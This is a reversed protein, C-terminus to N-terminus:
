LSYPLKNPIFLVQCQGIEDPSDFVRVVMKKNNVKSSKAIENLSATVPSSGIVGVVFEDGINGSEWDIYLTFNYIFVAKLDAERDKSQALGFVSICTLLIIFSFNKMM